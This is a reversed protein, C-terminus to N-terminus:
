QVMVHGEEEEEESDRRVQQMEHAKIMAYEYYVNRLGEIAALRLRLSYRFSRRVYAHTMRYRRSASSLKEDLMVTQLCAKKFYIESHDLRKALQMVNASSM